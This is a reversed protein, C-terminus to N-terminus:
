VSLRHVVFRAAKIDLAENMRRNERRPRVDDGDDMGMGLVRQGEANGLPCLQPRYDM